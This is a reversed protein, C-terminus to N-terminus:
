DSLAEREYKREKERERLGRYRGECVGEKTRARARGYVSVCSFLQLVGCHLVSCCVAVYQLVCLCVVSYICCVAICSVAVCQLVSGCV